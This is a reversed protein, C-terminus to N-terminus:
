RRRTFAEFEHATLPESVLPGQFLETGLRLLADFHEESAVGPSIVGADRAEALEHIVTLISNDVVVSEVLRRDLKAYRIPYRRIYQSPTSGSGVGCRELLIGAAALRSLTDVARNSDSDSEAAFYVEPVGLCLRERSVGEQDLLAIVRDVFDLEALLAVHINVVLFIPPNAPEAQWLRAQEVSRRLCHYGVEIITALPTAPDDLMDALTEDAVSCQDEAGEPEGPWHLQVEAAVVARDIGRVIPEFQLEFDGDAMAQGLRREAEFRRATRLGAGADAFEVRGGGAAKARYMAADAEAILDSSREKGSDATAVGVSATIRVEIGNTEIPEGCADVYRHAIRMVDDESDLDECVIVFEDGGIRSVTDYPRAVQQLRGAIQVLVDDGLQHGHTDNVEKFGDLDIFLVAVSSELRELRNVRHDLQSDLLLRNALGTLPDHLAQQELMRHQDQLESLVGTFRRHETTERFVVIVGDGPEDLGQASLAFWREVGVGTSTDVRWEHVFHGREDALLAYRDFLDGVDPWMERVRRGAVDAALPGIIVAAAANIETCEFDIITGSADRVSRLVMIGDMSSRMIAPWRVDEM